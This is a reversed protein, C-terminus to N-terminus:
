HDYHDYGDPIQHDCQESNGGTREKFKREFQKIGLCSESALRGLPIRKNGTLLLSSVMDLQHPAKAKRCILDGVFRDAIELM